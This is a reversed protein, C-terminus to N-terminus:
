LDNIKRFHHIVLPVGLYKLVVIVLRPPLLAARPLYVLHWNELFNSHLNVTHTLVYDDGLGAPHKGGETWWYTKLQLPLCKKFEEILVLQCLWIYDKNVNKSLCWRDFLMEKERGLVWVRCIDTERDEHEQVMPLLGWPGTLWWSHRVPLKERSILILACNQAERCTWKTSAIDM